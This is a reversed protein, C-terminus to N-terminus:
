SIKEFYWVANNRDNLNQIEECHMGNVLKVHKRSRKMWSTTLKHEQTTNDDYRVSYYKGDQVNGIVQGDYFVRGTEWWVRVRKGCLNNLVKDNKIVRQVRKKINTLVQNAFHNRCGDMVYVYIKPNDYSESASFLRPPIEVASVPMGNNDVIRNLFKSNERNRKGHMILGELAIIIAGPKLYDAFFDKLREEMQINSKDDLNIIDNKFTNSFNNFWVANCHKLCQIYIKDDNRSADGHHFFTRKKISNKKRSSSSVGRFHNRLLDRVSQLDRMSLHDALQAHEANKYGCKEESNCYDQMIADVRDRLRQSVRFRDDVCEIGAVWCGLVASLFIAALGRSSGVDLIRSKQSLGCCEIARELVDLRADQFKSIARSSSGSTSISYEKRSTEREIAQKATASALISARETDSDCEHACDVDKFNVLFKKFEDDTSSSDEGNM